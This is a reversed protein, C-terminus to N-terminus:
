EREQLLPTGFVVKVSIAEPFVSIKAQEPLVKNAIDFAKFTDISSNNDKSFSSAFVINGGNKYSEM